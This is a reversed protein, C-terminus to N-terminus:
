NYDWFVGAMDCVGIDWCVGCCGGMRSCSASHIWLIKGSIGSDVLLIKGGVSSDM